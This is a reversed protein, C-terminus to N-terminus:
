VRRTPVIWSKEDDPHILPLVKGHVTVSMPVHVFACLCVFVAENPRRLLRIRCLRVLTPSLSLSLPVSVSVALSLSHSPPRAAM